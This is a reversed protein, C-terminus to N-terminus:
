RRTHLLASPPRVWGVVGEHIHTAAAAEVQKNLEGGCRCRVFSRVCPPAKEEEDVEEEQRVRRCYEGRASWVSAEPSLVAASFSSPSSSSSLSPPFPAWRISFFPFSLTRVLSFLLSLSLQEEEEEEQRQKQLDRGEGGGGETM